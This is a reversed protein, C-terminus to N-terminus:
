RPDTGEIPPVAEGSMVEAPLEATLLEDAEAELRVADRVAYRDQVGKWRNAEALKKAAKKTRNDAM